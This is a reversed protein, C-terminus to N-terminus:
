SKEQKRLTAGSRALEAADKILSKLGKSQVDRSRKIKVHRVRKGVGELLNDPDDLDAGRYFYLNVYARQPGIACSMGKMGTDFGYSITRWGSYVTEQVGPILKRILDRVQLAMDRVEPGYKSLLKRVEQYAM